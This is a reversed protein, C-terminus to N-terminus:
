RWESILLRVSAVKAEVSKWASGRTNLRRCWIVSARGRSCERAIARATARTLFAGRRHHCCTAIVIGHVAPTTGFRSDASCAGNACGVRGGGSETRNGHGACGGHGGVDSGGGGGNGDGGGGNGDEGGSTGDGGSCIGAGEIDCAGGDGHIGSGAGGGDGGGSSKSRRDAGSAVSVGNDAADRRAAGHGRASVVCRLAFDTAAGCLHKGVASRTAGARFVVACRLGHVISATEFPLSSAVPGCSFLAPTCTLALPPQPLPWGESAWVQEVADLVLHRLDIKLRVCSAGLKLIERIRLLIGHRCRITPCTRLMM